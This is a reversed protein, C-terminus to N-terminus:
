IKGNNMRSNKQQRINTNSNNKLFLIVSGWPSPAHVDNKFRFKRSREYAQFFYSM